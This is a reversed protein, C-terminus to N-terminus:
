TLPRVECKEVSQKIRMLNTTSQEHEILPNSPAVSRIESKIQIIVKPVVQISSNFKKDNILYFYFHNLENIM